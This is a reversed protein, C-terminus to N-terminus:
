NWARCVRPQRRRARPLLRCGFRGTKKARVVRESHTDGEPTDEVDPDEVGQDVTVWEARPSSSAIGLM